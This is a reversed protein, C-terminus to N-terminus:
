LLQYPAFITDFSTQLQQQIRHVRAPDYAQKRQDGWVVGPWCPDERHRGIIHIHLQRVLNGICATNIKHVPFHNEIFVSLQNMQELVQQQQSQELHHFETVDTEPVLIFWPYLANDLLLVFSNQIKGMLHCDNRLQQHISFHM